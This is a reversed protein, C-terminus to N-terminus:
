FDINYDNDMGININKINNIMSEILLNNNGCYEDEEVSNLEKEFYDKINKIGEKEEKEKSSSVNM